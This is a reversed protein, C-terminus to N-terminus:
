YYVYGQSEIEVGQYIPKLYEFGGTLSQPWCCAAIIPSSLVHRMVSCGVVYLLSLVALVMSCHWHKNHVDKREESRDLGFVLIKVFLKM